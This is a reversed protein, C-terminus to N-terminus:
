TSKLKKKSKDSPVSCVSRLFWVWSTIFVIVVFALFAYVDLHYYAISPMYISRSQALPAGATAAVHEVWWAATEKAPNLRNRYSYQVQRAKEQTSPELAFRIAQTMTEASLDEYHVIQGMGRAAMAASNLFQM